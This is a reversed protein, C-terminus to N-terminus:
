GVCQSSGAYLTCLRRSSELCPQLRTCVSRRHLHDDRTLREVRLGHPKSPGGVSSGQLHAYPLSLDQSQCSSRRESVQFMLVAIEVPSLCMMFLQFPCPSAGATGRRAGVPLRKRVATKTLRMIMAPSSVTKGLRLSRTM